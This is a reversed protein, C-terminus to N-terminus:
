DNKLNREFELNKLNMQETQKREIENKSCVVSWAGPAATPEKRQKSQEKKTGEMRVTEYNTEMIDEIVDILKSIRHEDSKSLVESNLVLTRFDNINAQLATLEELALTRKGADSITSFLYASNAAEQQTSETM